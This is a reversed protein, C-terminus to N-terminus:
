EDIGLKILKVLNDLDSSDRTMWMRRLARALWLASLVMAVIHISEWVEASLGLYDNFDAAVLTALLAILVGLPAVWDHRAHLADRHEILCLKLKDSTTYIFEQATNDYFQSGELLRQITRPDFGTNSHPPAQNTM